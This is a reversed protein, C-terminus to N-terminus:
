SEYGSLDSEDEEALRAQLSSWKELYVVGLVMGTLFIGVSGFEILSLLTDEEQTQYVTVGHIGRAVIRSEDPVPWRPLTNLYGTSIVASLVLGGLGPLLFLLSLLRLTVLQSTKMVNEIGIGAATDTQVWM